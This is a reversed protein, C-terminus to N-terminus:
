PNYAPHFLIFCMLRKLNVKDFIRFKCYRGVVMYIMLVIEIINNDFVNIETIFEIDYNEGFYKM